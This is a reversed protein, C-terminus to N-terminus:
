NTLVKLCNKLFLSTIIAFSMMPYTVAKWRKLFVLAVAVAKKMEEIM